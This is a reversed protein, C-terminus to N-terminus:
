DEDAGLYAEIVAPNKQVEQPTGGAIVEGFNLVTIRDSIRMVLDMDHEVLLVTIGKDDRLRKIMEGLSRTEKINLGAAPEDLLLLKPETALARGIELIRQEGLPLSSALEKERSGLGIYDLIELSRKKVDKEEKLVGPLRLGSSLFGARTKPYRGVMVNEIVTMDSFLEVQQFTRSIGARAIRAASLKSIITGSFLIEGGDPPFIGSIINLLTTKGAGNPGILASISGKGVSFGVDKLAVLGGFSKVVAKIALM